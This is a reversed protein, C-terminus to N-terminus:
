VKWIPHEDVPGPRQKRLGLPPGSPARLSSLRGVSGSLDASYEPAREPFRLRHPGVNGNPHSVADIRGTSLM